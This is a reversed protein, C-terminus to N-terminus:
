IKNLAVFFRGLRYGLWKFGTQLFAYPLLRRRKKALSKLVFAAYHLGRSEDRKGCHLESQYIKRAMGMDFHRRFEQWLTYHHSHKVQAEASYAVAHGKKLLRAVAITDEGFPTKPFGGIEDLASNKYAACSNSCFFTYVGYKKIDHLRRIHSTEPYNFTRPLQELLSAGDRPIQRAYSVSAKGGVIPSVLKELLDESTPYADPTVMVVIDTGLHRRAQDRTLGHDFQQKPIVLIEAGLNKAEEVTGDNSSSDVVLVRPNLSSNLLPPLCQSLHHRSHYTLVAVGVSLEM